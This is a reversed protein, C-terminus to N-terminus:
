DRPSPSTYLLCRQGIRLPRFKRTHRDRNRILKSNLDLKPSMDPPALQLETSLMPWSQRQKRQFFAQSPSIGDERAMNRWTAVARRLNEKSAQCRIVLSKLNKVAAEALGNSEPNYPSSLEHIVCHSSNTPGPPCKRMSLKLGSNSM